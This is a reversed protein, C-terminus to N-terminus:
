RNLEYTVIGSLIGALISYNGNSYQGYQYQHGYGDEYGRQFGERFYHNYDDRGIYYYFRDYGYDADRYAYSGKYDSRWHDQRDAM